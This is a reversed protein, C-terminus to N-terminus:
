EVSFGNSRLRTILIEGNAQRLECVLTCGTDYTRELYNIEFENLVREVVATQEYSFRLTFRVKEFIEIKEAKQLADATAEKYAQVLGGVGLKVGGFYRIVVVLVNTLEFSRIQGLIPDGASHNPEGDDYARHIQNKVGLRYAYCHHRADFYQKRLVLLKAEVEEVTSVPYTFALFRSGKEKYIGETSGNITYAPEM